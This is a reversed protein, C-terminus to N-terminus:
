GYKSQSLHPIQQHSHVYVGLSLTGEGGYQNALYLNNKSSNRKQANFTHCMGYIPSMFSTFDAATCSRGNFLCSLLVSSLSFFLSDLSKNKYLMDQFFDGIYLAQLESITSTDNIDTLNKQKIYDQFPGIFHDFRMALSNCFSFAPFLQQWESVYSVDIKTRYEFYATITKTLFYIMVITFSIFSVSWFLRNHISTSRAIGPLAHASTNLCFERIISRRRPRHSTRNTKSLDIPMASSVGSGSM